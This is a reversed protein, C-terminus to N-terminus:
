EKKQSELMYVYLDCCSKLRRLYVKRVTEEESEISPKLKDCRDILNKLEDKKLTMASDTLGCVSEFEAKWGEGANSLPPIFSASQLLLFGALLMFVGNNRRM